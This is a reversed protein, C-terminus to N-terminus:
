IANLTSLASKKIRSLITGELAKSNPDIRGFKVFKLSGQALNMLKHQFNALNHLFMM